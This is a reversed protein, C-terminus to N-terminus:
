KAAEQPRNEKFIKSKFTFALIMDVITMFMINTELSIPLLFHLDYFLAGFVMCCLMSAGHTRMTSLIMSQGVLYIAVPLYANAPIPSGSILTLPMFWLSIIMGTAICTKWFGRSHLFEDHMILRWCIEQLGFTVFLLPFFVLTDVLSGMEPVQGLLFAFGFHIVFFYFGLCWASLKGPATVAQKLGALGGMSKDTLFVLVAALTPSIGGLLLLFVGLPSATLADFGLTQYRHVLLGFPVYTLVLLYLFLLKLPKRLPNDVVTRGPRM